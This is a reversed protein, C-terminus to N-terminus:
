TGLLGTGAGIEVVDRGRVFEPHECLWTATSTAADWVWRATPDRRHQSAINVADAANADDTNQRVRVPDGGGRMNPHAFTVVDKTRDM